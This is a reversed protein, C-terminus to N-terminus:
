NAKPSQFKSEIIKRIDDVYSSNMYISNLVEFDANKSCIDFEEPVSEDESDINVHPKRRQNQKLIQVREVVDSPVYNYRLVIYLYSFIELFEKFSDAIICRAFATNLVEM